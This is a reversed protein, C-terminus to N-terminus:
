VVNKKAGALGPGVVGDILTISSTKGTEVPDTAAYRLRQVPIPVVSASRFRVSIRASKSFSM